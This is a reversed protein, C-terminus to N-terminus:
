DSQYGQLQMNHYVCSVEEERGEEERGGGEGGERGGRRRGEGREERGGGEGGEREGGGTSHHRLSFNAGMTPSNTIISRLDVSYMMRSRLLTLPHPMTPRPM